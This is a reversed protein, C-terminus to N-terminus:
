DRVLHTHLYLRRYLKGSRCFQWLTNRSKRRVLPPPQQTSVNKPPVWWPVVFTNYFSFFHSLWHRSVNAKERYEWPWFIKLPEWNGFSHQFSICHTWINTDPRGFIIRFIDLILLISITPCLITKTRGKYNLMSGSNLMSGLNVTNGNLTLRTHLGRAYFLGRLM